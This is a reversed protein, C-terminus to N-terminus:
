NEPPLYRSPTQGGRSSNSPGWEFRYNDSNLMWDRVEQSRAPTSGM